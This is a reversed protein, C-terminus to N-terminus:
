SLIIVFVPLRIAVVVDDSEAEEVYLFGEVKVKVDPVVLVVVVM